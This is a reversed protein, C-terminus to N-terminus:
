SPLAWSGIPTLSIERDDGGLDCIRVEMARPLPEPLRDAWEIAMVGDEALEELGLDLVERSELRYLDVHYLPVRGRYQQVITFTPSSVEDPDVGLGDALGRVFATKGAGLEGYILLVDGRGLRAALRRGVASTESESATCITEPV